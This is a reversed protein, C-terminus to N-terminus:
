HLRFRGHVLCILVHIHVGSGRVKAELTSPICDHAVVGLKVDTDKKKHDMDHGDKEWM